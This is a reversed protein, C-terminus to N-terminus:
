VPSCAKSDVGGDASRHLWHDKGCRKVEYMLQDAVTTAAELDAPPTTFTVVGVSYGVPWYARDVEDDLSRRLRGIFLEAEEFDTEPLLLGFEDGGLRAALDSTRVARLLGQGVLRILRDGEQHGRSDNVQKFNDLDMYVVTLPRAHRACLSRVREGEQFFSRGNLLGTLSDTRSLKQELAHILKQRSVLQATIVFFVLRVTANWYMIWHQSYPFGSVYEVVLWVAGSTVAGFLGLNRGGRWALYATPLLYFVSFSIEFGTLYDLLGVGLTLALGEAAIAATTAGRGAAPRPAIEPFITQQKQPEEM